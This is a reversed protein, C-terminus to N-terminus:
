YVDGMEFVWRQVWRVLYKDKVVRVGFEKRWYRVKQSRMIELIGLSEDKYKSEKM